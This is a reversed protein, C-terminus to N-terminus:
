WVYIFIPVHKCIYTYCKFNKKRGRMRTKGYDKREILSMGIVGRFGSARRVYWCWLRVGGGCCYAELPWRICSLFFVRDYCRVATVGLWGVLCHLFGSVGLVGVLRGIVSTLFIKACSLKITNRVYSKM